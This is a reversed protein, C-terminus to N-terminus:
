WVFPILRKRGASFSRYRAGLASALAAEEVHIRYVLGALPILTLAAFSAWNGYSLGIGALILLIAAYSPHRLVRYPGTAIVPQDPTTLVQFTFLPGLTHFCWWRLAIGTWMLVLSVALVATSYGFGAAPFKAVALAAVAAAAAGVLRVVLLSGRDGSAAGSRRNLAQRLELLAWLGITAFMLVSTAPLAAFAPKM